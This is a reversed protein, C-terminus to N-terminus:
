RHLGEGGGDSRAELLPELGGGARIVERVPQLANARGPLNTFQPFALRPTESEAARRPMM